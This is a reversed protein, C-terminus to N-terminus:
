VGRAVKASTGYGPAALLDDGGPDIGVPLAVHGPAALAQLDKAMQLVALDAAGGGGRSIKKGLQGDQAISTTASVVGKSRARSCVM